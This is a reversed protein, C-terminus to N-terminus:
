HRPRLSAPRPSDPPAASRSCPAPTSCRGIPRRRRRRRGRNRGFGPSFCRPARSAHKRVARPSFRTSLTAPCQRPSVVALIEYDKLGARTCLELTKLADISRMVRVKRKKRDLMDEAPCEQAGTAIGYEKRPTTTVQYNSTTFATDCGAM